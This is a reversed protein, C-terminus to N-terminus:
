PKKNEEKQNFSNSGRLNSLDPLPPIGQPPATQRHQPDLGNVANKNNVMQNGM